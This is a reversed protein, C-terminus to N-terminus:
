SSHPLAWVLTSLGGFAAHACATEEEQDHDVYMEWLRTSVRRVLAVAGMGVSNVAVNVAPELLTQLRDHSLSVRKSRIADVCHGFIIDIHHLPDLRRVLWRVYPVLSVFAAISTCLTLDLGDRPIPNARLLLLAAAISLINLLVFGSFVPTKVAMPVAGVLVGSAGAVTFPITVILAAIAALSQVATVLLSPANDRMVPGLHPLVWALTAAVVLLAGVGGWIVQLWDYAGIGDLRDIPWDLSKPTVKHM